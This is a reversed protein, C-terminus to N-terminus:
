QERHALFAEYEEPADRFELWRPHDPPSDESFEPTTSTAAEILLPWSAGYFPLHRGNVTIWRLNDVHDEEILVEPHSM